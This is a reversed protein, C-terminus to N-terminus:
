PACQNQFINEVTMDKQSYAFFSQDELLPLNDKFYSDFIIRFSNVPTITPYLLKKAESNVYYANLIPLRIEPRPPQLNPGHDGQIIIVPPIKSRNIIQALIPPIKTNIFSLNRAYGKISNGTYQYEGEASFIYPEHPVLIHVVVFKPSALDPIKPLETLTYKVQMFHEYYKARSLDFGPVLQPMDMLIRLMSTELFMSEFENLGGIFLNLGFDPNNRTFMRDQGLDFQAESRNEFSYVAYGLSRLKRMLATDMLAPLHGQPSDTPLYNSQFLASISYRTTPYNAQSCGAVYFGLDRLNNLFRSNDFDYYTSIVDERGYSDLIILYIDPKEVISNETMVANPKYAGMRSALSSIINSFIPVLSFVILVLSTVFLSQTIVQPIARAKIIFWTLLGGIFLFGIIQYSHHLFETGFISSLFIYIHGYSYFILIALTTLLNGKDRSKTIRSFLFIGIISSFIAIVLSRIISNFNVYVLNNSSLAFIPYIAFFLPYIRYISSRKM